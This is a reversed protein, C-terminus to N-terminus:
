RQLYTCNSFYKYTVNALTMGRERLKKAAAGVQLAALSTTFLFSSKKKIKTRQFKIKMVKKTDTHQKHTDASVQLVSQSGQSGIAAQAKNWIQPV